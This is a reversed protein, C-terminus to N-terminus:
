SSSPRRVSPFSRPRRRPSCSLDQFERSRQVMPLGSGCGVLRAERKTTPKAPGGVVLSRPRGNALNLILNSVGVWLRPDRAPPKNHKDPVIAANKQEARPTRAHPRTRQRPAARGQEESRASLGGIGAFLDSAALGEDSVSRASVSPPRCRNPTKSRGRGDKAARGAM